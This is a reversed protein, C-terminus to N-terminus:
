TYNLILILDNVNTGTPGTKILHPGNLAADQQAFYTYSDNNNLYALAAQKETVTQGTVTAGAVGSTGDDGDTAFSTITRNDWGELGIAAALATELNRGGIGNGRLTVTTEGGLLTASQPPADKALAAAFQGVERAEGELKTTLLRTHFGLKEAKAAAAQVSQQISGIIVNDLVNTPSRVDSGAHGIDQLAIGYRELIAIADNATEQTAVTPGSGISALDNGVVDSLILSLVYAPAALRALGGGKVRDLQRRVTNLEQITCGSALLAQTIGQMKALPLLPQTFLASAGGSILCLVLDNATLNHLTQLLNQTAEISKEGPVPHNGEYAPLPFKTEEPLHKALIGGGAVATEGVIEVAALAMPVAAKGISLIFLRGNTLDFQHSGITLLNGKKHLHNAVATQPDAQELAANIIAQIDERYQNFDPM